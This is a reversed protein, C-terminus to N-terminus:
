PKLEGYRSPIHLLLRARKRKVPPLASPFDFFSSISFSFRSSTSARTKVSVAALSIKKQPM